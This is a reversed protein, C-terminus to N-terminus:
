KANQQFSKSLLTSFYVQVKFFIQFLSPFFFLKLFSYMFPLQLRVDYMMNPCIHIWGRGTATIMEMRINKVCLQNKLFKYIFVLSFAAAVALYITVM